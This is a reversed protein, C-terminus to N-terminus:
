YPMPDFKVYLLSEYAISFLTGNSSSGEYIMPTGTKHLRFGDRLTTVMGADGTFTM